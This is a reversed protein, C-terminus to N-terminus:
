GGSSQDVGVRSPTYEDSDGLVHQKRAPCAVRVRSLGGPECSATNVNKTGETFGSSFVGSLTLTFNSPMGEPLGAWSEGPIWFTLRGIGSANRLRPWRVADSAIGTVHTGSRM